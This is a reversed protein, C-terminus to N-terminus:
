GEQHIADVRLQEIVARTRRMLDERSDYTLGVPDIPEGFLITIPHPRIRLSAKPLITFTGACYIPILPVQAAIALVFPGKKFPLLEGTRSRTGEPFVVATIGGRIAAAASEYAEFAAGLNKRDIYIHGAARMAQGLLPISAMEKKAMFRISGPMVALLALIDFFSQHNSVLVVPQDRPLREEHVLCVPTGAARLLKRAWRRGCEDYVGGPRQRVRFLGALIAKSGYWITWVTLNLLYWISRM